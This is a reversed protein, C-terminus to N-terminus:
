LRRGAKISALTTAAEAFLRAIVAATDPFRRPYLVSAKLPWRVIVVAPTEDAEVLEITLTDVATIQAEGLITSKSM